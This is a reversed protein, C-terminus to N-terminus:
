AYRVMLHKQRALNLMGILVQRGASLEIVHFAATKDGM